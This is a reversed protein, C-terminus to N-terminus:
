GFGTGGGTGAQTTEIRAGGATVRHVPIRAGRESWAADCGHRPGADHQENMRSVRPPLWFPDCRTQSIKQWGGVPM